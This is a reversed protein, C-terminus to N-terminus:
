ADLRVGAFKLQWRLDGVFDMSNYVDIIKQEALARTAAEIPTLNMNKVTFVAQGADLAARWANALMSPYAQIESPLDSSPTWVITDGQDTEMVPDVVWLFLASIRM